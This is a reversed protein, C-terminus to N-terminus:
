CSKGRHGRREAPVRRVRPAPVCRRRGCEGTSSRSGDRTLACELGEKVLWGRRSWGQSGCGGQVLWTAGCGQIGAGMTRHAHDRNELSERKRASQSRRAVASSLEKPWYVLHLECHAEPAADMAVVDLRLVHSGEVHWSTPADVQVWRRPVIADIHGAIVACWCPGSAEQRSLASHVCTLQRPADFGGKAIQEM